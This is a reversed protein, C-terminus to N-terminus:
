LHVLQAENTKTDKLYERQEKFQWGSCSQKGYCGQACPQRMERQSCARKRENAWYGSGNGAKNKQYKEKAKAKQEFTALPVTPPASPLQTVFAVNRPVLKWLTRQM